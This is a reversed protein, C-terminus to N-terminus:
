STAVCEKCGCPGMPECTSGAGHQLVCQIDSRCLDKCGCSNQKVQDLVSTFLPTFADAPVCQADSEVTTAVAEEVTGVTQVPDAEGASVGMVCVSLVVAIGVLKSWQAFERM